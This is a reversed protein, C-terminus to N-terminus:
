TNLINSFRNVCLSKPDSLYTGLMISGGVLATSGRTLLMSLKLQM